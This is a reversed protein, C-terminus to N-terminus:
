LVGAVPAVLDQLQHALVGCLLQCRGLLAFSGHLVLYLIPMTTVIQAEQCLAGCRQAAAPLLYHQGLDVLLNFIDAGGPTPADLMAISGQYPRRGIAQELDVLHSAPKLLAQFDECLGHWAELPRSLRLRLDRPALKQCPLAP